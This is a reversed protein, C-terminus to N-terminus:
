VNTEGGHEHIRVDQPCQAALQRLVMEMSSFLTRSQRDPEQKLRVQLLGQEIDTKYDVSYNLEQELGVLVMQTVASIWACIVSKEAPADSAHGCSKFGTIEGQRNRYVDITIM